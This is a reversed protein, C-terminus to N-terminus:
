LREPELVRSLYDHCNELYNYVPFFINKRVMTQTVVSYDSVPHAMKLRKKRCSVYIRDEGGVVFPIAAGHFHVGNHDINPSQSQFIHLLRHSATYM